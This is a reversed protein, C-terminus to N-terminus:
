WRFGFTVPIYDTHFSGMFIRNYRAEAFIKGHFRTGFAVGAGVDIGPKNVSYSSLIQTTPIAVPFFGFFPDFGPVVAVSPQTFDVIRHYLGGGGTVYLDVHGKPNLHIIPDFTASFVHMGGGPVGINSLTASNIGFSNYNLNINAGLYPIFNMGLGGGINWGQDVHRGTNGLPETFGGGIDFTFRPAEQACLAGISLLGIAATFALRKM